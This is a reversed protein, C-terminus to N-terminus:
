GGSANFLNLLSFFTPEECPIYAAEFDLLRHLHAEALVGLTGTVRLHLREAVARGDWDDILLRDAYLAQALAIAASEGPDLFSLAPNPPPDPQIELWAPPKVIWLQVETPAGAAALEASVTQPVVVRGYLAKLVSIADILVLYHIPGTDAVVIM